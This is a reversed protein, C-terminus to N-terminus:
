NNQQAEYYHSLEIIMAGMREIEPSIIRKVGEEQLAEATVKGVAVAVVKDKFAELVRETYNKSRLFNFFSRVQIAATFCVADVEQNTMENVLTELTEEVPAVHQYPLLQLVTAGSEELFTILRPANEGHLQVVVRKGNFDVDKLAEMMGTTTGDDDKADPTVNLKKLAAFTKYGRSAVKAQHIAEIFQDKIGMDSALDVLRQAGMGTTFIMWDYSEEIIKELGPKVQEDALFVTGQLSRVLPIGQQKEILTSMEETKRSAGLVVRKGLLGQKM